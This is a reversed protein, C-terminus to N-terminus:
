TSSGIPLPLDSVEEVSAADCACASVGRGQLEAEAASGKVARAGEATGGRGDAPESVGGKRAAEDDQWHIM